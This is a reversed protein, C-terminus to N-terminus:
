LVRSVVQLSLICQRFVSIQVWVVWVCYKGLSRLWDDWIKPHVFHFVTTQCCDTNESLVEVLIRGM